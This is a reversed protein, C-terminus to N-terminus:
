AVGWAHCTCRLRPGSRVGLGGRVAGGVRRPRVVGGRGELAGLFGVVAGACRFVLVVWWGGWLGALLLM